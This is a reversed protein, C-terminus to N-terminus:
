ETFYGQTDKIFSISMEIDAGQSDTELSDIDQGEIWIYMRTKTIGDPVTFLPDDFDEETMTEQLMFYNMDMYPSGSVTYEVFIPGGAKRYAYTDFYTGDILNIGYKIAREISLETHATSNPEYIISYCNDNCSINQITNVDANKAVSGDENISFDTAYDFYLNDSVPSNSDNKFFVDFALYRNFPNPEYEQVMNTTLYGDTKDKTRYRVGSSSFINFLESNHNTIGNSSVPVMGGESWQSLNNPYLEPLEEFLTEYSVEITTDFNIGDLSILLGTNKNVSMTFTKIRVNLNTTFWAYTSVILLIGLLVIIVIIIQKNKNIIREKINKRKHKKSKNSVNNTTKVM